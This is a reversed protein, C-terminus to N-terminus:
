EQSRKKECRVDLNDVNGTPKLEFNIWFRAM